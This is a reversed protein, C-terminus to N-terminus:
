DIAIYACLALAVLMFVLLPSQDFVVALVVAVAAIALAVWIDWSIGKLIARGWKNPWLLLRCRWQSCFRFTLFGVTNPTFPTSKSSHLGQGASPWMAPYM